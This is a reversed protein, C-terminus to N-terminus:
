RSLAMKPDNFFGCLLRGSIPTQVLSPGHFRLALFRGKQEQSRLRPWKRGNEYDNIWPGPALVQHSDLVFVFLYCCVFPRVPAGTEIFAPM